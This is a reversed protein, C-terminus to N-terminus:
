RLRNIAVNAETIAATLEDRVRMADKVAEALALSPAGLVKRIADDDHPSTPRIADALEDIKQYAYNYSGGSMRFDETLGNRKREIRSIEALVREPPIRDLSGRVVVLRGLSWEVVAIMAPGDYISWHGMNALPKVILSPNTM